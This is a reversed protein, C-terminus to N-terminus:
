NNNGKSLNHVYEIAEKWKHAFAEYTFNKIVYDYQEKALAKLDDPNYKLYTVINVGEEVSSFKPGPVKAFNGTPTGIVPIGSLIAEFAPLPGTESIGSPVSTILLLDITSYWERVQEYSLHRWINFDHECPVSSTINFPIGTQRAIEIAWHAQKFWVRPAGCWGIKNLIGDRQKYTYFAPDAGNPTWFVKSGQPFLKIISESTAAYTNNVDLPGCNNFEEFGDSRFIIKRKDPFLNFPTNGAINTIIVDYTNYIDDIFRTPDPANSYNWDIIDIEYEPLAAKVDRAVLGLSWTPDTFLCVKMLEGYGM